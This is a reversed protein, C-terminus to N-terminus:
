KIPSKYEKSVSKVNNLIMQKMYELGITLSGTKVRQDFCVYFVSCM